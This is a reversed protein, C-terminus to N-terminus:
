KRAVVAYGAPRYGKADQSLKFVRKEGRVPDIVLAINFEEAFYQRQTRVDTSSLFCGYNPHAHAWGVVLKGRGAAENIRAALAGFAERGFRVSVATADNEATIYEDIVVYTTGQWKAATGSLLGMAELRLGAAKKCHEQAARM